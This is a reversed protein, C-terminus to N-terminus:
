YYTYEFTIEREKQEKSGLVTLSTLNGQPNYTFVWKNKLAEVLSEKAINSYELEAPQKSANTRLIYHRRFAKMKDDIETEAVNSGSFTYDVTYNRLPSKLTKIAPWGVRNYVFTVSLAENGGSYGLYHILRGESYYFHISDGAVGKRNLEKSFGPRGNYNDYLVSATLQKEGQVMEYTETRSLLGDTYYFHFIQPLGAKKNQLETVRLTDGFLRSNLSIGKGEDIVSLRQLRGHAIIASKSRRKERDAQIFTVTDKVKSFRLEFLLKSGEKVLIQMVSDAPVYPILSASLMRTVERQYYDGDRALLATEYYDSEAFVASNGTTEASTAYYGPALYDVVLSRDFDNFLQHMLTQNILSALPDSSSHQAKASQLFLTALVIFLLKKFMATFNHITDPVALVTANIRLLSWSVSAVAGAQM